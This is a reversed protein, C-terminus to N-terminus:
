LWCPFYNFKEKNRRWTTSLRIVTYSQHAQYLNWDNRQYPSLM